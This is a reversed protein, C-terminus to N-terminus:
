EKGGAKLAEIIAEMGVGRSGKVLVLDKKHLIAGVAQAATQSNPFSFIRDKPLGAAAAGEAMVEALSGVTVLIDWGWEAVDKGAQFHFEREKEGLELMDGLVAVKRPASLRGLSRLASALARPNSNYTDDYVRIGNQLTLAAGRGPWAKLSPVAALVNSAPVSMAYAVGAAALFNWAASEYPIPFDVTAAEDGYKLDFSLGDRGRSKFNTARILCREETGFTVRRGAWDKSIWRVLPDDQNLVATAEPGAGDLIEKKALAIEELSRFFQLHVPSVNTIVAVDPPAIAALAAIEGPASMGMELVAAQHHKELGLLTLSLGLRNNYNGESKLVSLTKGLLVATFEKTTTKGVSGTIGIVKVPHRTLVTRALDQLAQITDRVLLLAFGERPAPVRRSVVAGAAGAEAAAPIFDHGDRKGRLAFFLGGPRVQRSDISFSHVSLSPEGALMQGGTVRAMDDWRMEAM